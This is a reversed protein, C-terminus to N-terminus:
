KAEKRCLPCGLVHVHTKGPKDFVRAYLPVGDKLNKRCVPCYRPQFRGKALYAQKHGTYCFPCGYIQM